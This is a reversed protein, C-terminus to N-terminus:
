FGAEVGIEQDIVPCGTRDTVGYDLGEPYGGDGTARAQALKSNCPNGQAIRSPVM